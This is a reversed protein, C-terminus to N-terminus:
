SVLVSVEHYGTAGNPVTGQKRSTQVDGTGDTARVALTYQGPTTPKWQWTWFVWSDQSLAPQLTATNWTLGADTSVEVKEIGRNGAFAVGGVEVTKGLAIRGFPRDIRSMTHLPGNYWGQDSYLGGVFHDTLEVRTLWKPNEEGYHGPILVRMPFGHRQPLEAGNMRWALLTDDALVEKLPLSMNYGDVSYFAVHTASPQAGGHLALLNSLTVGQWIATSLLHGGPGNAICELTIARSTSPLNQVESYTYSGSKGVLGTVELRWVATGPSPDIPNQTVVYHDSNPTIPAVFGNQAFTEMGDYGSYSNLFDKILGFTGAAAGVGVVAVGARALLQRRGQASVAVGAVKQKPLMARYAIALTAGYLVFDALLGVATVFIAWNIPLGLFNQRLENWFLVIAALSMVLAFIGAILWERRGPRYEKVPQAVRALAAYLLGLVTGLGIMGLLALGLPATKANSKFTLLLKLFTDVSIHKLVYDGFLEVPTPIGATLRLVLMLFVAMLSAVFGAILSLLGAILVRRVRSPKRSPATEVIEPPIQNTKQM